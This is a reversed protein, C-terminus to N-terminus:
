DAFIEPLARQVEPPVSGGPLLRMADRLSKLLELHGATKFLLAASMLGPALGTMTQQLQNVDRCAAVFWAVGGNYGDPNTEGFIYGTQLTMNFWWFFPTGMQAYRASQAGLDIARRLSHKKRRLTEKNALDQVSVVTIPFGLDVEFRKRGAAKPEPGCDKPHDVNTNAGDGEVRPVLEIIGCDHLQEYFIFWAPLTSYLSLNQKEKDVVGLMLALERNFLWKYHEDYSADSEKSKPPALVARPESVSKVSLAYHHRFSMLGTESESLNCILDFGIDEQRPVQMVLGLASLIYVALYESRDGERFSYLRVGTSM